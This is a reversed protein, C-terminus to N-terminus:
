KRPFDIRYGMYFEFLLFIGAITLLGSGIASTSASRGNLLTLIQTVGFFAIIGAITFLGSYFIRLNLAKRDDLLADWTTSIPSESTSALSETDRAGLVHSERIQLARVLQEYGGEQFLNAWQWQNLRKPVDVDEFRVPIIFSTEEPKESAVDLSIKIEKQLYGEKAISKRSLCVLVVNCARVAARIEDEWYQGPLLDQEDLWPAFGNAKLRRYLNRV